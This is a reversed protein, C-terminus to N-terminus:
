LFILLETNLIVLDRCIGSCSLIQYIYICFFCREPHKKRLSYHTVLLSYNNQSNAM